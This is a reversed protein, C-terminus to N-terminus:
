STAHIVARTIHGKAHKASQKIANVARHGSRVVARIAAPPAGNKELQAVCAQVVNRIRQIAAQERHNITGKAAKGTAIIVRDPAGDNDLVRISHVTSTAVQRNFDITNEAIEAVRAVCRQALTPGDDQALAHPACISLLLALFGLRITSTWM